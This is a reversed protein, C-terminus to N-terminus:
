EDSATEDVPPPQRDIEERLRLEVANFHRELMAFAKIRGLRVAHRTFEANTIPAPTRITTETVTKEDAEHKITHLRTPGHGNQQENMTAGNSPTPPLRRQPAAGDRELAHRLQRHLETLIQCVRSETVGLRQGIALQSLGEEYRATLILCAREPLGAIARRLRQTEDRAILQEDSGPVNGPLAEVDAAVSWDIHRSHEDRQRLELELSVGRREAVEFDTPLRNHEAQLQAVAEQRERIQRRAHRTLVDLKRLEDMMAGGIYRRAFSRFDQSVRDDFKDMARMLGVAGAGMLDSLEVNAPLRRKKHLAVARILAHGEEFLAQRRSPTGQAHQRWLGIDGAGSVTM